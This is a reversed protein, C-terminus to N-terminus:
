SILFLATWDTKVPRIVSLLTLAIGATGELLGAKDLQFMGPGPLDKNESGFPAQLPFSELVKDIMMKRYRAFRELGTDWYMLNTLCLLGAYGHCFTPATIMWTAAPRAFLGDFAAIAKKKLDGDNLACGALWLVRAVGPAGYCWADRTVSKIAAGDFHEEPTVFCPWRQDAEDPWRNLWDAIKKIAARQGQIEVGSLLSISLLALPGSIGHAVGLDFYGDPFTAQEGHDSINGGAIYWGPLVVRVRYDDVPIDDTLQILYELIKKLLPQFLPEDKFFLLYRGIGALGYITDYDQTEVNGLKSFYYSIDKPLTKILFERAQSLLENDQSYSRAAMGIGAVGCFLSLDGFPSLDGFGDVLVLEQIKSLYDHAADYWSQCTAAEAFSQRLEGFLIALGPYGHAVTLEFGPDPPTSDPQHISKASGSIASRQGHNSDALRNGMVAVIASIKDILDNDDLPIWNKGPLQYSM